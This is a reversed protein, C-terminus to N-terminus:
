SSQDLENNLQEIERGEERERETERFKLALFENLHANKLLQTQLSSLATADNHARRVANLNSNPKTFSGVNDERIYGLHLGTCQHFLKNWSM